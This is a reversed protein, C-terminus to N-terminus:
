NIDELSMLWLIHKQKQKQKQVLFFNNVDGCFLLAYAVEERCSGLAALSLSLADSSSGLCRSLFDTCGRGKGLMSCYKELVRWGTGAEPRCQEETRGPETGSLSNLARKEKRGTKREPNLGLRLLWLGNKSKVKLCPSELTM